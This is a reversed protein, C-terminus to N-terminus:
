KKEALKALPNIILKEGAMFIIVIAFCSAFVMSANATTQARLMIVGIGSEAGFLESVLAIKWCVGYAIRIAAIVYPLLMPFTIKMFVRIRNRTFSRGMELIEQNLERLGEALNVLCFPTLIAIQVFMVSFNSSGFWIVALIAWGVSPFSNLFPKIREHVIIDAIPFRAPILALILGLIVSIIVSGIVRITSILIDDLFVPDVFIEVLSRGVILPGPMVLDSLNRSLGWWGLILLLVLFWSFFSDAIVPLTLSKSIKGPTKFAQM